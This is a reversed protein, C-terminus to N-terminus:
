WEAAHLDGKPTRSPSRPTRQTNDAYSRWVKLDYDAPSLGARDALELYCKELKAYRHSESPPNKLKTIGLARLHKMAHRDLPALRVGPRSHLVFFRATKPGVWPLRELSEVPCSRLDLGSNALALFGEAKQTHLGIGVWRIERALEEHTFTSVLRFPGDAEPRPTALNNLLWGMRQAVTKSRRGAVCLAFLAFEELETDTRDFQTIHFPNIM